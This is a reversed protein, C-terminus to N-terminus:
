YTVLLPDGLVTDNVIHHFWMMSVPYARAQPGGDYGLVLDADALYAAQSAPVFAPDDLVVFGGGDGNTYRPAITATPTPNAM